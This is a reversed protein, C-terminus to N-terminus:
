LWRQLHDLYGLGVLPLLEGSSPIPRTIVADSQAAGIQADVGAMVGTAALSGLLRRRSVLAVQM